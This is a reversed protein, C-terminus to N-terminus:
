LTLFTKLRQKSGSLVKRASKIRNTFIPKDCIFAEQRQTLLQKIESKDEIVEKRQQSILNEQEQPSMNIFKDKIQAMSPNEIGTLKKARHLSIDKVISIKINM